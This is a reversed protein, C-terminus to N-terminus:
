WDGRMMATVAESVRQAADHQGRFYTDGVIQTPMFRGVVVLGKRERIVKDTLSKKWTVDLTIRFEMDQPLGTDRERSVMGQTVAIITGELTTDATTSNSVKYPTRAEIENTLAKTVDFELGQYFSKNKFIPVYITHYEESYVPKTSYGCGPLAAVAGLLCLCVGAVGLAPRAMWKALRKIRKM